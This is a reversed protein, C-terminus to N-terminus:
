LKLCDVNNVNFFLTLPFTKEKCKLYSHMCAVSLEEMHSNQSKEFFIFAMKRSGMKIGADKRKM